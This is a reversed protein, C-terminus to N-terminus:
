LTNIKISKPNLSWWWCASFNKSDECYRLFWYLDQVDRLGSVAMKSAVFGAKLPPRGQRGANLRDVFSKILEQHKSLVKENSHPKFSKYKALIDSLHM